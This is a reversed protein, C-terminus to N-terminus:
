FWMARGLALGTAAAGGALVGALCVNHVGGAFLAHVASSALFVSAGTLLVARRMGLMRRSLEQVASISVATLQEYSLACFDPVEHGIVMVPDGVEFTHPPMSAGVAPLVTVDALLTDVDVDIHDVRVNRVQVGGHYLNLVDGVELPRECPHASLHLRVRDGAGDLSSGCWVVQARVLIDPVYGTSRSVCTPLVKEVEQALLGVRRGRGHQGVDVYGYDCVRLAMVDALSGHVDRINAKVRADSVAYFNGAVVASEAYISYIAVSQYQSTAAPQNPDNLTNGFNRFGAQMNRAGTIVLTNLSLDTGQVSATTGAPGQPGTAGTAGTNGQPGQPGQPGTAGTGGTYGQPGQPGQPGTAGTAGTDGKPGQPGTAGPNGQPGQPGTAGTNGQPGTAGTAGTNGQPGQPGQPGVQQVYTSGNWSYYSGITYVNQCNVNGSCTTNGGLQVTGSANIAGCNLTNGFTNILGCDVGGCTVKGATDIKLTQTGGSYFTHNAASQYRLTSNNIGFGYFNTATSVPDSVGGAPDYLVLLKNYLQRTSNVRLTGNVDLPYAPTTTGIGVNGTSTLSSCSVNRSSDMALQGNMVVATTLYAGAASLNHGNLNADGSSSLYSCSVTACNVDGSSTLSSCSVNRSSDMALVGNMVVATTLYAGAASLNHGNLNADGSSSLYSCSVTACNVNGSSTLSACAVAGTASVNMAETYGGSTTTEGFSHGGGGGGKQNMYYTSGSGNNNRNWGLYVGQSPTTSPASTVALGGSSTLYSCSVTAFNTNRSSDMVQVGNM